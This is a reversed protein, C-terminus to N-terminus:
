RWTRLWMWWEFSPKGCCLPGASLIPFFWAFLAPFIRWSQPTDGFLMIALAIFEKGVLPHEPNRPRQMMLMERAAKVYHVEDFYIRTPLHLRLWLLVLFGIAIAACWAAPDKEVRLPRPLDQDM